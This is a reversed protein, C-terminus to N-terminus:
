ILTYKLSFSQEIWSRVAQDDTIDPGLLGQVVHDTRVKAAVKSKDAAVELRGDAFILEVVKEYKWFTHFGMNRALGRVLSRGLLLGGTFVIPLHLGRYLCNFGIPSNPDVPQVGAITPGNPRRNKAPLGADHYVYLDALLLQDIVEYNAMWGRYCATSPMAPKLGFAAPDFLEPGNVGCLLFQENAYTVQDSAQATM